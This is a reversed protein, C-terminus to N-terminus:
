HSSDIIMHKFNENNPFYILGREAYKKASVFDKNLLCIYAVFENIKENAPNTKLYLNGYYVTEEKQKLDFCLRTLEELALINEPQLKYADVFAKKAKLYDQQVVYTRGLDFHYNFFYPYISIAKSLHIVAKKQYESRTENSLTSNTVSENMLSLALMNNAQASNELHVIDTSMLGVSGKWELNRSYTRVSFLLLFVIVVFELKRPKFFNFSPKLAFVVAAVFVSFGASATFALREGVMGAVLEVWNSFLFISILYWAIGISILPRKNIQYIGLIFLSLYVLLYIWVKYNNFDTTSIKSYGYYFSLEYPFVMLRGYEGLVVLGTAMKENLTHPAVLTNEMYELRRGESIENKSSLNKLYNQINEEKGGSTKSFSEMLSPFYNAEFSIYSMSVFVFALIGIKMYTLFYSKLFNFNLVISFALLAIQFLGTKFYILSITLNVLALLVGIKPNRFSVYGFLFVFAMLLLVSLTHGIYLMGIVSLIVISINLFDAKKNLLSYIAFATSILFAIIFFDYSKFFYGIVVFQLLMQFVNKKIELQSITLVLFSLFVYGLNLNYIALGIFSWSIISLLSEGFLIKNKDSILNNTKISYFFYSLGIVLLPIIMLLIFKTLEFDSGVIAGPLVFSLTIILLEKWNVEKLLLFVIPFVIVLPFISKKSLMGIVFFLASFFILYVSKKELYKLASLGSLMVFLFALIEDRNKISAVVESHVPHVVFILAALFALMAKDTGVFKTLLKFFLFGSLCYLLVNISHSIFPNESFLSHEVAFSLLVIPRYGFAHGSSDQYYSGSFIRQISSLSASSTLPQNQTVLTDDYNYGNFTSNAFVLVTIVLLIYVFSNRGFHSLLFLYNTNQSSTL